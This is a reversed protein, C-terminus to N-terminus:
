SGPEQALRALRQGHGLDLGGVRAVGGKLFINAPKLDFHVLSREHLAAVGRCAQLFCRLAEDRDAANQAPLRDKLTETGAFNMVLFPIGDVEGKDEISVLNPHDIQAFYRVQELELLVARRVETDDVKLFKIAYDKGISQKLDRLM